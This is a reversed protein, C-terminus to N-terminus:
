DVVEYMREIIGSTVIVDYICTFHINTTPMPRIVLSRSAPWPGWKQNKLLFHRSLIGHGMLQKRFLIANLNHHIQEKLFM